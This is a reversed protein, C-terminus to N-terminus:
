YNSALWSSNILQQCSVLIILGPRIPRGIRAFQLSRSQARESLVASNLKLLEAAPLIHHIRPITALRRSTKSTVRRPESKKGKRPVLGPPELRHVLVLATMIYNFSQALIQTLISNPSRSCSTWCIDSWPFHKPAMTRGDHIVRTRKFRFSHNLSSGGVSAENM